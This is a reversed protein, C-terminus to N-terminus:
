GALASSTRSTQQEALKLLQRHIRSDDTLEPHFTAALVNGQRVLVPEGDYRALVEVEPSLEVFRPARIFVARVPTSEGSVDLDTEFSDIQRGFGNRRVTADILGLSRQPPDQVERAILIAGACTALISKGAAVFAPLAGFWDEHEMLKLLTSSEGGPMVLADMSDLEAVRRIEVVDVGLERYVAAHADFDGQLALVGVQLRGAERRFYSLSM